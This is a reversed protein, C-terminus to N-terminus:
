ASHLTTSGWVPKLNIRSPRDHQRESRPQSQRGGRHRHRRRYNLRHQRHLYTFSVVEKLNRGNTTIPGQQEHQQENPKKMVETKQVNVQLGTKAAEEALQNTKAQLDEVKHSMLCLDDNASDLVELTNEGTRRICMKDSRVSQQM